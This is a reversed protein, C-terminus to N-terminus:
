PVIYLTYTYVSMRKSVVVPSNNVDQFFNKSDVKHCINAHCHM